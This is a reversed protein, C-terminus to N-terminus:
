EWSCILFLIITKIYIYICNIDLDLTIKINGEDTGVFINNENVELSYLYEHDNMSVQFVQETPVYGFSDSKEILAKWIWSNNRNKDTIVHNWQKCVQEARCLTKEDLNKFIKELIENPIDIM